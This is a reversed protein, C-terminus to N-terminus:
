ASVIGLTAKATAYKGPWGEPHPAGPRWNRLYYRWAGEVDGVAPLAPPDQWLLLRAMCCALRDNYVMAQYVTSRDYPIDLAGCVAKLQLPTVAFLEAVGGMEEFQWYSHAPGGHQVRAAWDSEQGAITMVLIRARDDSTVDTLHTLWELSKEVIECFDMQKM